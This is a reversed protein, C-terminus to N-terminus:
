SAAKWMMSPRSTIATLTSIWISCLSIGRTSRKSSKLRARCRTSKDRTPRSGTRGANTWSSTKRNSLNSWGPTLRAGDVKEGKKVQTGNDVLWKITTAFNSGKTGNRVQCVIDGNKASELSGRAVVTVPLVRRKVVATPGSFAERGLLSGSYYLAGGAVLVILLGGGGVVLGKRRNSWGKARPLRSSGHRFFSEAPGSTSPPPVSRADDAPTSYENTWVGRDDLSLLEFDQYLQIRTTLYSLWIDYMKTQANNLGSLATLYQNTLAAATGAGSTGTSKLQDPDAPAVIVELASEVQSYLSQLLKQQIKYNEAFLHLQRVDFRVQAAISDELNMLNRRAQQYNIISTRYANRQALRNLPLQFNISLQQTTGAGSFAFPNNNGTPTASALNYQTNFVGLLVAPASGCNGGPTRSRPAPM